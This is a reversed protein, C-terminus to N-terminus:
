RDLLTTRAVLILPEAAAIPKEPAEGWWNPRGGRKEGRVAHAAGTM